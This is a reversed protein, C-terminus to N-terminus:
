PKDKVMVVYFGGIGSSSTQADPGELTGGGMHEPVWRM